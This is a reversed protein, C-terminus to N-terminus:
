RGQIGAPSKPQYVVGIDKCRFRRTITYDDFIAQLEAPSFLEVGSARNASIGGYDWDALIADFRHERIMRTLERDSWGAHQVLQNLVFPNSVWVKKGGFLLAGINMSLVNPGADNKVWAYASSCSEVPGFADLRLSPQLAFWLVWASAMATTSFAVSRAPLQALTFLGLGACLCLVAPWELFHNWGSGLKGATSATFTAFVLWLTPVTLRRRLLDGTIYVASLAVLARNDAFLASM